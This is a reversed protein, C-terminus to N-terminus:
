LAIEDFLGKLVDTLAAEGEGYAKVLARLDDDMLTIIFKQQGAHSRARAIARDRKELKRCVLFGFKGGNPSFRGALQDYEENGLEGSYNKAEVFVNGSPHSLSLWRFFGNVAENTYLLDVKKIGQYLPAQPRPRVLNPYFLAAFLSKLSKEYRDFDEKGPKCSLVALLLDDLTPAKGDGLATIEQNSLPGRPDTLTDAKYKQYISPDSVIMEEIMHKTNKYKDRLKARDVRRQGSKLTYVLESGPRSLEREELIDLLYHSYLDSRDTELRKRVLMKPVLLLRRGAAVPLSEMYSDQWKKAEPDWTIGSAVPQTPIAYLACMEQTYEILQSRIINTTVDSIIDSGIGPVFLAADELEQLLGSSAAKSGELAGLLKSANIRGVGRGAPKGRSLGLRTDNPEHLASLLSYARARDGRRIAALVEEFFTQLLYVCGQAWESHSNRLAGPDVFVPLDSYVDVDVFDLEFQSLGLAYYSSVRGKLKRKRHRRKKPSTHVPITNTPEPTIM